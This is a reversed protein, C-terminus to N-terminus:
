ISRQILDIHDSIIWYVFTWASLYITACGAALILTISALLLGRQKPNLGELWDDLKWNLLKQM